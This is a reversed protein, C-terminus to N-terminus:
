ISVEKQARQCFRQAASKTEKKAERAIDDWNSKNNKMVVAKIKRDWSHQETAEWKPIREKWKPIRQKM